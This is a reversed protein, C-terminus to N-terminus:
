TRTRSDQVLSKSKSRLKQIQALKQALDSEGGGGSNAEGAKKDILDRLITYYFDYDDFIQLLCYHETHTM